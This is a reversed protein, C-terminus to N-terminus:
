SALAQRTPDSDAADSPAPGAFRIGGRGASKAEILAVRAARHLDGHSPLGEAPFAAVGQSVTLKSGTAQGRGFFERRALETRIREAVVQAGALDTEPLLVALCSETYRGGTDNIRLTARLLAAVEALLYSRSLSGARETFEEFGDIEALIIAFPHGHRRAREFELSVTEDFHPRSCLGTLDDHTALRALEVEKRALQAHLQHVMGAMDRVGKAEMTIFAVVVFASVLAPLAISAITSSGFSEAPPLGLIVGLYSAAIAVAGGLLFLMRKM